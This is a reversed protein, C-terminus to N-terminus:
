KPEEIPVGERRAKQEFDGIAKNITDAYNILAMRQALDKSMKMWFIVIGANEKTITLTGKIPVFTPVTPAKPADKLLWDKVKQFATFPAPPTEFAGRPAILPLNVFEFEFKKEEAVPTPRPCLMIRGSPDTTGLPNNYVYRYPNSDPGLGTPDENEWRADQPNLWRANFLYTQQIADYVGGDFKFRDGNAANSESVIKGWPDYVMADLTNGSTDVIQRVSGLMDTVYWNTSDSASVRAYFTAYASPDTVYWMTVATGAGNFDMYPNSGDFVTWRQQTGNVNVGILRGEVDYTYQESQLVTGSSTKEVASTMQNKYNWTYYWVDGSATNTKTLTNGNKDYTYTNSGDNLLQNGTGIVYGTMNRNGNADYSWSQSYNSGGLTGAASTLEGTKDYGYTLSTGSTDQFSSVQNAFNYGYTYNALTTSITSDTYTINSLRSAADYGYTSAITDNGLGSKGDTRTIASLRQLGDYSMSLQAATTGNLAFSEGTMQNDGNYTYGMSGGLSDTM